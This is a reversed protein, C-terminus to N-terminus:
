VFEAMIRNSIDIGKETLALHTDDFTLLGKEQYDQLLPLQRRYVRFFDTHFTKDFDEICLGKEKRLATFVYEGMLDEASEPEYGQEDAPLSGGDIKQFYVKLDSTNCYRGKDYLFGHAGLGAGYYQDFDWYKLNHRCAFGPRCSNSIEYCDYGAERLMRRGEHYMAREEKEPPLDVQGSRYLRCLETGEELQLSYFSIHEPELDLVQGLSDRWMSMDQGPLGLMLDVNINDFGAKRAQRFNELFDERSHIRGLFRLMNEDMSQLGMSLRNIGAKRFTQLKDPGLTGPNAELSIEAGGEISFAAEAAEMIRTINEARLLSPTGGGIFISDLEIKRGRYLLLESVLAETYRSQLEEDCGGFSLFDCYRCKQLCFPIHIYLGAPGKQRNITTM